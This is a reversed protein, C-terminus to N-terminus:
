LTYRKVCHNDYHSVVVNGGDSVAIYYPSLPLAYNRVFDGNSKWVSLRKNGYDAIIINGRGDVAVGNPHNFQGDGNGYSGFKRIFQGTTSFVQVRNNGTIIINGEEDVTVGIPYNFQGDNGYSGFKRILQGTRSFVQVRNNNHDAVIINGEHDFAVGLPGNLMGDTQGSKNMTGLVEFSPEERQIRKARMKQKPENVISSPHLPLSLPTFDFFRAYGEGYPAVANETEKEESVQSHHHHGVIIEGKSRIIDTLSDIKVRFAFDANVDPSLQRQAQSLAQKL